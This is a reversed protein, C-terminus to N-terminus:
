SKFYVSNGNSDTYSNEDQNAIQAFDSEIKYINNLGIIKFKVLFAYFPNLEAKIFDFFIILDNRSIENEKKIESNYFKGTITNIDNVSIFLETAVSGKEFDKFKSDFDKTQKNKLDKKNSKAIGEFVAKTTKINNIKKYERWTIERNRYKYQIKEKTRKANQSKKLQKKTPKVNVKKFTVQGKLRKSM